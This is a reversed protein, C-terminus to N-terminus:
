NLKGILDRVVVSACVGGFAAPLYSITGYYSKKFNTGDTLQLSDEIVEETSFVVKIGSNIKFDYRLRKRVVKALKCIDSKKIDAVQIKTPDLKAGAGMSSIVPIKLRHATSILTLKPTLSDICDVVYDYKESLLLEEVVEPQIFQKLAKLNLEPNIDLLRNQMIAVKDKGESSFTAPLQRNRNSRDVIDGDVITMKGVGSRCIFEAAYSGVGGMGVVLVNSKVLKSLADEKILLNTRILWDTNMM